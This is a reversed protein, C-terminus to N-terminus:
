RYHRNRPRCCNTGFTVTASSITASSLIEHLRVIDNCDDYMSINHLSYFINVFLNIWFNLEIYLFLHRVLRLPNCFVFLILKSTIDVPLFVRPHRHRDRLRSSPYRNCSSLHFRCYFHLCLSFHSECLCIRIMSFTTNYQNPSSSPRRSSSLVPLPMSFFLSFHWFVFQHNECEISALKIILLWLLM